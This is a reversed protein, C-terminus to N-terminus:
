KADALRDVGYQFSAFACKRLAHLEVVKDKQRTRPRGISQVQRVSEGPETFSRLFLVNRESEDEVGFSGEHAWVSSRHALLVRVLQPNHTNRRYIKLSQDDQTHTSRQCM